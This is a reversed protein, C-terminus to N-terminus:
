LLDVERLELLVGLKDGLLLREPDVEAEFLLDLEAERVNLEDALADLECVVEFLLDALEV